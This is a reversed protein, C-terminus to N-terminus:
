LILKMSKNNKIKTWRFLRDYLSFNPDIFYFYLFFPSLFHLHYFYQPFSGYLLSSIFTLSYYVFSSVSTNLFPSSFRFYHSLFKKVPHLLYFSQLFQPLFFIILFIFSLFSFLHIYWLNNLFHLYYLHVHILFYLCSFVVLLIITLPFFLSLLFTLFFSFYPLM